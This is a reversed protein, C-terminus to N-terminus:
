WATSNALLRPGSALPPVKHTILETAPPHTALFARAAELRAAASTSTIVRM